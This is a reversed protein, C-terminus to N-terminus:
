SQSREHYISQCVSCVDKSSIASESIAYNLSIGCLSQTSDKTAIHQDKDRYQRMGWQISPDNWASALRDASIKDFYSQSAIKREYTDLVRYRECHEGGSITNYSEVIYRKQIRKDTNYALDELYAEYANRCFVNCFELDLRNDHFSIIGLPLNCSVCCSQRDIMSYPLGYGKIEDLESVIQGAEMKDLVSLCPNEIFVAEPEPQEFEILQELLEWVDDATETYPRLNYAAQLNSMVTEITQELAEIEQRLNTTTETM